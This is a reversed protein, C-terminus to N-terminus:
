GPIVRFLCINKKPKAGRGMVRNERNFVTMLPGNSEEGHEM